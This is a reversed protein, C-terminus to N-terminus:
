HRCSQVQKHAQKSAAVAAATAETVAGETALKTATLRCHASLLYANNLSYTLMISLMM